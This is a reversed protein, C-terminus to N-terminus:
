SQCYLWYNGNFMKRVKAQPFGDHFYTPLWSLLVFFCNNQCAHAIVCAWFSASGFLKLWPVTDETRNHQTCLRNPISVNIIRYRDSSMTYYRMVLAWAIGM